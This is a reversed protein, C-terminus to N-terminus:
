EAAAWLDALSTALDRCPRWGLDHGARSIDAQQWPIDPSRTQAPGDERVAAPCGSAAILGSVMARVPVGRGSGVNLVPHPLSGATVAALVADAVDRADVFDRVADLPGLRVEGTGDALARRLEAALRGPLSAAPAGPGVPNFVRLVVADLGAAAATGVIRTGALKTVGYMAGPRTAAQETVPVGPEAAGYEAASGLHVLRAAGAALMATVLAYTGEINAAVLAAPPGSTAGACNVVADPAVETLMTAIVAPGDAALDAVLHAPSGPLASRGATVVDLGAARARRRIHRGLFGGAGIILLRM